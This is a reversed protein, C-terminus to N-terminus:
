VALARARSAAAQARQAAGHSNEKRSLQNNEFLGEQDDGNPVLLVGAPLVFPGIVATLTESGSRPTRTLSALQQQSTSYNWM